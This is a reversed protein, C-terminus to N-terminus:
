INYVNEDHKAREPPIIDDKTCFSGKAPIYVIYMRMTNLEELHYLTMKLVFHGKLPCIYMRMTNLEKLDYLTTKLFILICFSGKAPMYVNEDHKAREPRIIDDKSLNFYM